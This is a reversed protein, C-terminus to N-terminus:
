LTFGSMRTFPPSQFISLMTPAGKTIDYPPLTIDKCNTSPFDVVFIMSFACFYNKIFIAKLKKSDLVLKVLTFPNM